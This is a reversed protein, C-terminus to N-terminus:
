TLLASWNLRQGPWGVGDQSILAREQVVRLERIRMRRAKRRPDKPNLPAASDLEADTPIVSEPAAHFPRPTATGSPGAHSLSYLHTRLLIQQVALLAKSVAHPLAPLPSTQAPHFHALVMASFLDGVGSFSGDITPLAFAWTDLQGDVFSSAFCVLVDEDPAGVGVANFWPPHPTPLLRDYQQPPAPLSLTSVISIPLPISSFAIHPLSHETHLQILAANLTALSDIKVGSLLRNDTRALPDTVYEVEFQNPTIVTALRLMDKYIPVVDPSVYLGTGVDGM